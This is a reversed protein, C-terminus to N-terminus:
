RLLHTIILAQVAALMGIPFHLPMLARDTTMHSMLAFLLGFGICPPLAALIRSRVSSAVISHLLFPGKLPPYTRQESSGAIARERALTAANLRFSAYFILPITTLASILILAMAIDFLNMGGAHRYVYLGGLFVLPLPISLLGAIVIERLFAGRGLTPATAKDSEPNLISFPFKSVQPGLLVTKV